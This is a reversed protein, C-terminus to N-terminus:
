EKLPVEPQMRLTPPLGRDQPLKSRGRTAVANPQVRVPQAVVREKLQLVVHQSWLECVLLTLQRIEQLVPTPARRRPLTASDLRLLHKDFLQAQQELLYSLHRRQPPRREVVPDHQHHRGEPPEYRVLAPLALQLLRPRLESVA